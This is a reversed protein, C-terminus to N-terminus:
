QRLVKLGTSFTGGTLGDIMIPIAISALDKAKSGLTNLANEIFTSTAPKAFTDKSLSNL